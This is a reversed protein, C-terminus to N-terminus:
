SSATGTLNSLITEFQWISRNNQMNSQMNQMNSQMNQMNNQMYRMYLHNRTYKAYLWIAMNGIKTAIQKAYEAIL